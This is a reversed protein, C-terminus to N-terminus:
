VVQFNGINLQYKLRLVKKIDDRWENITYNKTIEIMFLDYDAMYVALKTVSQRGSGGIGTVYLCVM